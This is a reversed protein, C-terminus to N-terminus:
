GAATTHGAKGLLDWDKNPYTAKLRSDAQITVYYNGVYANYGEYRLQVNAGGGLCGWGHTAGKHLIDYQDAYTNRDDSEAHYPDTALSVNASDIAYGFLDAWAKDAETVNADIRKFHVEFYYAEGKNWEEHPISVNGADLTGDGDADWYQALDNWKLDVSLGGPIQAQNGGVQTSTNTSTNPLGTLLGSGSGSRMKTGAPVYRVTIRDIESHALLGESLTLDTTHYGLTEDLAKGYSDWRPVLNGITLKAGLYMPFDSKNTVIARYGSNREERYAIPKDMKIEQAVVPYQNYYNQAFQQKERVTGLAYLTDQNIHMTTLDETGPNLIQGDVAQAHNANTESGYAGIASNPRIPPLVSDLAVSSTWSRTWDDIAQKTKFKADLRFEGRNTTTGRLEVFADTAKNVWGNFKSYDLVLGSLYGNGWAQWDIVIDGDANVSVVDTATPNGEEDLVKATAWGPLATVATGDDKGEADIGHGYVWEVVEKLPLTKLQPNATDTMDYYEIYADMMDGAYAAQKDGATVGGQPNVQFLERSLVVQRTEYDVFEEPANEVRADALTSKPLPGVTLTGGLSMAYKTDNAVTVKYGSDYDYYAKQKALQFGAVDEEVTGTAFKSRSGETIHIDDSKGDAALNAIAEILPTGDAPYPMGEFKGKSDTATNWTAKAYNTSFIGGLEMTDQNVITGNLDIYGGDDPTLGSGFDTFFQEFGRLYHADTWAVNDELSVVVFGDATVTIGADAIRQASVDLTGATIAAQDEATLTGTAARLLAGDIIFDSKETPATENADGELCYTLRLDSLVGGLLRNETHDAAASGDPVRNGNADVSVTMPKWLAPSIVIKQSDYDTRGNTKFPVKLPDEDTKSVPKGQGQSEKLVWGGKVVANGISYNSDNSVTIRWGTGPDGIYGEFVKDRGADDKEIVPKGNEMVISGDDNRKYEWNGLLASPDGPVKSERMGEVKVKLNYPAKRSTFSATASAAVNRNSLNPAIQEYATSFRGTLSMTDLEEPSGQVEVCLKEGAAIGQRGNFSDFGIELSVFYGQQGPLTGAWLEPTLVIGNDKTSGDPNTIVEKHSAMLAKLEEGEIVRTQTTLAGGGAGPATRYRLTLKTIESSDLVGQSIGIKEVNFGAGQTSGYMDGVTFTAPEMKSYNTNNLTFRWGAGDRSLIPQRTGDNSSIAAKDDYLTAASSIATAQVTPVPAKAQLFGGMARESTELNTSYKQSPFNWTRKGYSVSMTNRYDSQPIPMVGNVKLTIPVKINAEVPTSMVIRMEGTFKLNDSDPDDENTAPAVGPLPAIGRAELKAALSTAKTTGGLRYVHTYTTEGDANTKERTEVYEPKGLNVWEYDEADPNDPDNAPSSVQFQAVASGDPNGLTVQDIFDNPFVDFYKALAHDPKSPDHPYDTEIEFELNYLRFYDPLSDSIEPGATTSEADEGYLPMNGKTSFDYIQYSVPYGLYSQTTTMVPEPDKEQIAGSALTRYTELASKTATMTAEPLGFPAAFKRESDSWSYDKGEGLKGFYITTLPDLDVYYGLGQSGVSQQINTTYPVAMLFTFHGDGGAPLNEIPYLHGGESGTVTFVVRGSANNTRYPIPKTKIIPNGQDDKEADVIPYQDDKSDDYVLTSKVVNGKGDREEVYKRPRNNAREMISDINAFTRMDLDDYDQQLWNTTDYLLVGGYNPNGLYKADKIEEEPLPDGGFKPNKVMQGSGIPYEIWQMLDQETIGQNNNMQTNHVRFFYELYDIEASGTSTNETNVKYVMYNYRDYLVNDSIAEYTTKWTLNTKLLTVTRISNATGTGIAAHYKNGPVGDPYYLYESPGVLNSFVFADGGYTISGGANEPIDGLM